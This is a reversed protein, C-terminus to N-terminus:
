THLVRGSKKCPVEQDEIIICRSSIITRESTKTAVYQISGVNQADTWEVITSVMRCKLLIPM